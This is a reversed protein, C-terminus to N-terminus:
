LVIKLDKYLTEADIGDILKNLQLVSQKVEEAVLGPIDRANEAIQRGKITIDIMTGKGNEIIGTMQMMTIANIIIPQFEQFKRNLAQEFRSESNIFEQYSNYRRVRKRIARDVSLVIILDLRAVDMISDVLSHLVSCIVLGENHSIRDM